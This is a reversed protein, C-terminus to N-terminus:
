ALTTQCEGGLSLVSTSVASGEAQRVGEWWSKIEDNAAAAAEEHKRQVKNVLNELLALKDEQSSADGVLKKVFADTNKLARDADKRMADLYTAEALEAVAESRIGRIIAPLGAIHTATLAKVKQEWEDHRRLIDARKEATELTKLRQREEAEEPTETHQPEEPVAEPEPAAEDAGLERLFADLDEDDLGAASETGPTSESATAAHPTPTVHGADVDTMTSHLAETSSYAESPATEDLSFM